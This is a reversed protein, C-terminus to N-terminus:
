RRFRSADLGFRRLWRHVQVRSRQSVRAIASVNGGHKTLLAILEARRADERGTPPPDAEAEVETGSGASLVTPEAPGSGDVSGDAVAAIRSRRDISAPAGRVTEPLHELRIADGRALAGAVTLCASLEGLNSPWSHRLLARAAEPTLRYPAREAPLRSLIDAILLGLDETRARLPPLRLTFAALHAHLDRRFRGQATMADLDAHTAAVIQLDAPALDRAQLVRLLAAQQAPVLDSIEDLFLTGHAAGGLVAAGDLAAGVGAPDGLLEAEVPAACHVAVFAGPKGTLAHVARAVREKGTGAEGLILVPAGTTAVVALDDFAAALEPLFTALRPEPAVLDPRHCDLPFQVSGPHAARFLYLTHGLEIIDGDELAARQCRTGNIWVGNKSGTDEAIWRSTDRVLRAHFESIRPDPVGLDLRRGGRMARPTGARGIVVEDLDLLVHRSSGIALDDCLLVMILVPAPERAATPRPLVRPLTTPACGRALASAQPDHITSVSRARGPFVSDTSLQDRIHM